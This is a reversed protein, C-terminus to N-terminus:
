VLRSMYSQTYDDEEDSLYDDHISESALSSKKNIFEEDIGARRLTEMYRKEAAQKANDQLLYLHVILKFYM